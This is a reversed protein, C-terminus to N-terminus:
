DIIVGSEIKREYNNQLTSRSPGGGRSCHAHARHTRPGVGDKAVKANYHCNENGEVHRRRIPHMGLNVNLQVKVANLLQSVRKAKAEKERKKM